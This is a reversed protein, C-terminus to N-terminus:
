GDKKYWKDYVNPRYKNIMELRRKKIVPQRKKYQEMYEQDFPLVIGLDKYVDGFWHQVAKYKHPEYTYLTELVVDIDKAFPCGICGTRRLEYKTYAESIKLDYEKIFNDVDESTWYWLPMSQTITKGKIKRTSTCGGYAIKRIGGEEKRMGTFYGKINHEAYYKHFPKKKFIDCCIDSINYELHPHLFHMNKNALRNMSTYEKGNADKKVNGDKTITYGQILERMHKHELPDENKKLFNGYTKLNNSGKKNMAPKGYNKIVQAMSLDPKIRKIKHKNEHYWDIFTYIAHYELKTDAFIFDIDSILGRDIAMLTLEALVTSDKGGSFSLVCQGETDEYLKQIRLIATEIKDKLM